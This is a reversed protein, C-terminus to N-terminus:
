FLIDSLATRQGMLDSVHKQGTLKKDLWSNRLTVMKRLSLKNFVDLDLFTEM